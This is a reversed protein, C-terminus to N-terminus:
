VAKGHSVRGSHRDRLGLLAERSQKTRRGQLEGFVAISRSADCPAGELWDCLAQYRLDAVNPNILGSSPGLELSRGFLEQTRFQVPAGEPLFQQCQDRM